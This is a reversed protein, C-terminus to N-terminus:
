ATFAELFRDYHPEPWYKVAMKHIQVYSKIKLKGFSRGSAKQIM